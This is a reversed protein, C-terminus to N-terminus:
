TTVRPNSPNRCSHGTARRKGAVAAAQWQQRWISIAHTVAITPALAFASKGEIEWYEGIRPLERLPVGNWVSYVAQDSGQIFFNGDTEATIVGRVRVPYGREAEGRSLNKIQEIQLLLSM